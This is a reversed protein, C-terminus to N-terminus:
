KDFNFNRSGIAQGDCFISVNYQGGGLYENVTWYLTLATEEGTYEIAKKMSWALQKGSYEFTGGGNLVEGEPTTVRVYVNRSGNTATVNKTIVFSVDITKADKMHKAAKGSKKLPTLRINTADLQSAIAVKESLTARQSELQQNQQNSEALESRVRDNEDMLNQNLRNLSDIQIVYSRLVARVTALEKKLRTIEAVDKTHTKKLEELLKQTREQQETRQAIISHNKTHTKMEGYQLAFDQYEKEMEQKDLAALEEMDKNAQKEQMLSYALWGMGALLLVIIAALVKKNMVIEM